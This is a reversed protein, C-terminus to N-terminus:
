LYLAMYDTDSYEEGVKFSRKFTGFKEFGLREYLGIARHNNSNVELTIIKMGIKRAFDIGHIMLEKAFGKGWHKKLLSISISGHHAIRDRINAEFSCLGIIEGEYLAALMCGTPSKEIKALFMEEQALTYPVGEAGFLLFDTESGIKKSYELIQEADEVRAPRITLKPEM